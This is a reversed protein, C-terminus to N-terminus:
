RQASRDVPARGDPVDVPRGPGPEVRLHRVARAFLGAVPVLLVAGVALAARIGYRNGVLGLVPGGVWEGASGAVSTLSLVTARRASDTVSGNLWARLPPGTLDRVVATALYALMAPWWSGALAFALACGAMLLHTSALLRALRAQSLREWRSVLPAAVLISLVTVVAALVSFWAVDGLGLLGPLGVDVLLHAEWLRDFGEEWAGLLALVGLVLVLVPTGRVVRAGERATRLGQGLHSGTREPRTFGREPMLLAVLFGTLVALVGAAVLPLRLDSLALPVAAALGLLRGVRGVQAGRTYGRVMTARDTEDALWADEAGSRFTWGAGWVAMGALVALVGGPGPLLAVVLMGTGMVLGAVVLSLRRSVLDAVIGTPVELVSYAVELATGALVLQLPDLSLDRVLYVPTTVWSLAAILGWLGCYALWVPYADPRRTM